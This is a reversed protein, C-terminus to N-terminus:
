RARAPSMDLDADYDRRELVAEVTTGGGPRSQVVITGGLREARERMGQLGFHGERPGAESGVVFGRGDDAVMARLTGALPDDTVAVEIRRPSGHKLANHVAEQVLLLVSGSVFEPLDTFAGEARVELMVDHGEAVRSVLASLAEAFPKGDLPLSRMAWVSGQLEKAAHGVMRRAVALHRSSEAVPGAGALECADLQFGIGSITQQLTDHLNAALRNRERLTADFEIAADRRSRMEAALLRTQVALQRRLTLAWALATALVAVTVGLATFLREPTWWPPALIVRFDEASRLILRLHRPATAVSRRPPEREVTAVGTVLVVSQPATDAIAAFTGRDSEATVIADDCRLLLVGGDTTPQSQLLHASFTVLCGDYDGPAPIVAPDHDAGNAALITAPTVRLPTPPPTRAALRTVTANRIGVVAGSRDLFGVVEVNDGIAFREANGPAGVGLGVRIGIHGNQLFLTKGPETHIVQGFTRVRRGSGAAPRFRGISDATLMLTKFEPERAPEVVEIWERREVRVRPRVIENRQNCESSAPGAVRLRADVLRPPDKAAEPFRALVEAPVLATFLRGAARLELYLQGADLWAQEVIGEVEVLRCDESGGFFAEPDCRRPAPLARSGAVMIREARVVPTFGGPEVTGTVEVEDGPELLPAAGDAGAERAGDIGIVRIGGGTDEVIAEPGHDARWVSIVRGQLTVAPRAAIEAWSLAQVEAIPRVDAGFLSQGACPIAVLLISLLIDRGLFGM